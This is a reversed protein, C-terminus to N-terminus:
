TTPMGKNQMENIINQLLAKRAGDEEVKAANFFQYTVWANIEQKNFYKSDDFEIGLLKSVRGAFASPNSWEFLYDRNKIIWHGLMRALEVSHEADKDLPPLSVVKDPGRKLSDEVISKEVTTRINLHFLFELLFSLVEPKDRFQAVTIANAHYIIKLTVEDQIAAQQNFVTEQLVAMSEPSAIRALSEVASNRNLEDHLSLEGRLFAIVPADAMALHGASLVLLRRRKSSDDDSMQYLPHDALLTFAQAARTMKTNSAICELMNKLNLPLYEGSANEDEISNLFKNDGLQQYVTKLTSDDGSKCQQLVDDYLSAFMPKDGALANKTQQNAATSACGSPMLTVILVVCISVLKYMRM